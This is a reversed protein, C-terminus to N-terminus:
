KWTRYAVGPFYGSDFRFYKPGIIEFKVDHNMGSAVGMPLSFWTGNFSKGRRDARGMFITALGPRNKNAETRMSESFFVVQSGKQRLFIRHADDAHYTGTIDRTSGGSFFGGSQAPWKTVRRPDIKKLTTHPLDGDTIEITRGNNVIKMTAEGDGEFQGYPLSLWSGTIETSGSIEGQYVCAFSQDFNLAVMVVSNRGIVYVYYHAYGGSGQTEYVGHISGRMEEINLTPLVPDTSAFTTQTTMFFLAAFLITLRM